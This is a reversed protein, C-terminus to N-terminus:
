MSIINCLFCLFLYVYLFSSPFFSVLKLPCPVLFSASIFLLIEFLLVWVRWSSASIFPCWNSNQNGIPTVAIIERRKSALSLSCGWPSSWGWVASGGLLREDLSLTEWYNVAQAAWSNQEPPLSSLTNLDAKSTQYLAKSFCCVM